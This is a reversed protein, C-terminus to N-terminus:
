VRKDDRATAIRVKHSKYRMETNQHEPYIVFGFFRMISLM